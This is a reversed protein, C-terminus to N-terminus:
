RFFMLGFETETGDSLRVHKLPVPLSLSPMKAFMSTSGENLWAIQDQGWAKNYYSHRYIIYTTSEEYAEQLISDLLADSKDTWTCDIASM